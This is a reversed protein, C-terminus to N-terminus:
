LFQLRESYRTLHTFLQESHSFPTYFYAIETVFFLGQNTEFLFSFGAQLSDVRFGHGIFCSVFFGFWGLSVVAATDKYGVM